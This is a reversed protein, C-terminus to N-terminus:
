KRPRAVRRSCEMVGRTTYYVATQTRAHAASCAHRFFHCFRHAIPKERHLDSSSQLGSYALMNHLQM